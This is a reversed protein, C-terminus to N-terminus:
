AILGSYSDNVDGILIGTLSLETTSSLDTITVVKDYYTNSRSIDSYDGNTDVFVWEAKETTPLGVAYKLIALADQSSVKGDQNFDAAIYDFATSTGGQTDMGVSLRLADLADQSSISKTSTDYDLSGSVTVDAGSTISALSVGDSGSLISTTDNGDNYAVSVDTMKSGDRIAVITSVDILFEALSASSVKWPLSNPYDLPVETPYMNQNLDVTLIPLVAQFPIIGDFVIEVDTSIEEVVADTIVAEETASLNEFSLEDPHEEFYPFVQEDFLNYIEAFVRPAAFSTGFNWQESWDSKQVFGNAMIDIAEYNDIDHFLLEGTQDINYAGVNIVTPFYDGWNVGPQGTNPVAQVIFSDDSLIKAIANSEIDVSSGGFSANLGGVLYTYDANYMLNYAHNVINELVNGSFVVEYDTGTSFDIDIAIIEVDDPNRLTSTFAEIVWDGHGPVASVFSDVPLRSLYTESYTYGEFTYIGWFPDYNTLIPLSTESSVRTSEFFDSIHYYGTLIDVSSTRDVTGLGFPNFLDLNYNYYYDDFLTTQTNVMYDYLYVNDYEVIRDSFDDIIIAISKFKTM